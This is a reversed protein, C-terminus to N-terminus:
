ELLQTDREIHTLTGSRHSKYIHKSLPPTFSPLVAPFHKLFIIEALTFLSNVQLLTNFIYGSHHHMSRPSMTASVFADKGHKGKSNGM